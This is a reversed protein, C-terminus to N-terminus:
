LLTAHMSVSYSGSVTEVVVDDITVKKFLKKQQYVQNVTDLFTHISQLSQSSIELILTSQSLSFTTITTDTPLLSQITAVDNTLSSQNKHLQEIKKIRDLLLANKEQKSKLLSLNAELSNKQNRLNPLASNKNLLFISVYATIVLILLSVAIGRVFRITKEQQLIDLKRQPLLNIEKTM